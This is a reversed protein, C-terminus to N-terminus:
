HLHATRPSAYSYHEPHTLFIIKMRKRHKKAGLMETTKHRRQGSRCLPDM